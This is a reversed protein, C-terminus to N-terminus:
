QFLNQLKALSAIHELYTRDPLESLDKPAVKLMAMKMESLLQKGMADTAKKIEDKRLNFPLHGYKESCYLSAKQMQEKQDALIEAVHFERRATYASILATYLQKEFDDEFFSPEIVRFAYESELFFALIMGWFHERLSIGQSIKAPVHSITRSSRKLFGNWEDQMIREDIHLETGLMVIAENKELPFLLASILPFLEFLIKRKSEITLQESGKKHRVLALLVPLPNKYAETFAEVNSHLSEDPDKGNPIMLTYVLLGQAFLLPLIRETAQWGASDADFALVVRTAMRKLMKAQSESFGVGSAAVTNCFGFQHCTIVDLNGEVLMVTETERIHKKALHYGFLLDSKKYLLTEPSNLYKPEDGGMARGGFGCINGLADYIPFVIRNRFKDYVEGGEKEVMMGAKLMQQRSNKKELLHKELSHFSNPAFGIEFKQITETTLRRKEKLYKQAELSHTLQDQFFILSQSLVERLIEKEEKTKQFMVVLKKDQSIDLPVGAMDALLQLAEPFSINEIKQLFALANGGNQCVFCWCFNKDPDIVLSPKHDNHFPCVAKFVKGAPTLSRYRSVVDVINIKALLEKPDIM